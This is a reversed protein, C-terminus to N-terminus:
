GAARHVTMASPYKCRGGHGMGSTAAEREDLPQGVREGIRRPAFAGRVRSEDALACEPGKVGGDGLDALVDM